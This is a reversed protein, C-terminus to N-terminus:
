FIALIVRGLDEWWSPGGVMVARGGWPVPTLTPTPFAHPALIANNQELFRWSQGTGDWGIKGLPGLEVRVGLYAM